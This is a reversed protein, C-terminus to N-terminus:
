LKAAAAAGAALGVTTVSDLHAKVVHPINRVPIGMTSTAGGDVVFEQSGAALDPWIWRPRGLQRETFRRTAATHAVV